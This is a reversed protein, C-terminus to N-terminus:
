KRYPKLQELFDSEAEHGLRLAKDYHEVALAYEKNLFYARAINNHVAPHEPMFGLTKKYLAIAEEYRGMAKYANGLNNYTVGFNPDATIAKEYFVIAEEHEGRDSLINALNSYAEAPNLDLEIAKKYAAIAKDKEGSNDYLVGLNNYGEALAPDAEIAKKFAELAEDNKGIDRYAVGLNSYAGASNPDSEIAKKYEEIAEEKKGMKYYTIGLDNRVRFSAPAYELTRKYFAVPERWYANQRVTLFSYFILLCIIFAAWFAKIKKNRYIYEMWGALLLFGGMSPIYMWHEAMYAGVPYLNSAPLLTIFFWMISFLILKNGKRRKLAYILLLACVIMGLLSGASTFSFIKDGYEMHLNLPLLLLGFYKVIAVFFGPIREFVASEGAARPLATRVVASRLLVYLFAPTLVLLFNGAKIKRSFAYHYLLLLAPLILSSERSLLAAAYSLMMLLYILAKGSDLSKVYFIFALLMFVAALPDARGSIYSVAETHVPHAVFFLGALLAIAGNGFLVSAMWYLCLAALIHLMINTLHYGRVDTGWLSYEAMYTLMQLPRYSASKLGAGAGIDKKFLMSIAAPNKVYINEEILYRDDWIFKGNLANAYVLFGLSAVLILAVYMNKKGSNKLIDKKAKDKM